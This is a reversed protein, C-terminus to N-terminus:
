MGVVPSDSTTSLSDANAATADASGGSNLSIVIYLVIALILVAVLLAVALTLQKQKNKRRQYVYKSTALAAPNAATSEDANGAGDDDIDVAAISEGAPALHDSVQAASSASTDPESFPAATPAAVSTALLPMPLLDAVARAPQWEPWGERWLLTDASVRAATIAARLQLESLPGHQEGNASRFHWTGAAPSAIVTAQDPMSASSSLSATASAIPATTTAAPIVLKAGCEPCSGRKGALEAKVNLKHGNPCLFRIGM